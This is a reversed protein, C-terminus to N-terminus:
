NLYRSKPVVQVFKINFFKRQPSCKVFCIFLNQSADFPLPIQTCPKVVYVPSYLHLELWEYGRCSISTLPWNWAEKLFSVGTRMSYSSPDIGGTQVHLFLSCIKGRDLISGRSRPQGARLRMMIGAEVPSPLKAAHHNHLPSYSQLVPPQTWASAFTNRKIGCGSLSQTRGRRPDLSCRTESHTSFSKAPM